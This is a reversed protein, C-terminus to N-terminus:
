PNGYGHCIEQSGMAQMGRLEATRGAANCKVVAAAAM